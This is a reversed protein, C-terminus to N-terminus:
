QDPRCDYEHRRIESAVHPRWAGHSGPSRFSEARRYVHARRRQGNRFEGALLSPCAHWEDDPMMQDLVILLCQDPSHAAVADLAALGSPAIRCDYGRDSLVRYLVEANDSSDDVILIM